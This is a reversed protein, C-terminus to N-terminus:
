DKEKAGKGHEDGSKGHGKAEPSPTTTTTTTTPEPLLSLQREVAAAAARLRRVADGSLEGRTRLQAIEARVRALAIRAATRDGSTSAARLLSIEAHLRSSATKSVGTGASGCAALSMTLLMTVVAARALMRMM